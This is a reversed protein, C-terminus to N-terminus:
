TDHQEGKCFSYVFGTITPERYNNRFIFCVFSMIQECAGRVKTITQADTAVAFCCMQQM